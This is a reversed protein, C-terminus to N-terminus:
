RVNDVFLRMQEGIMQELGSFEGLNARIFGAALRSGLASTSAFDESLIELTKRKLPYHALEGWQKVLAAYGNAYSTAMFYLDYAHKGAKPLDVDRGQGYARDKFSRAKAM